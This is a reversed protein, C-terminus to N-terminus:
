KEQGREEDGGSSGYANRDHPLVDKWTRLPQFAKYSRYRPLVSNNSETGCIWVGPQAQVTAEGVYTQVLDEFEGVDDIVVGQDVYVLRSNPDGEPGIMTQKICYKEGARTCRVCTTNVEGRGSAVIFHCVMGKYDCRLCPPYKEKDDEDNKKKEKEQKESEPEEFDETGQEYVEWPLQLTRVRLAERTWGAAAGNTRPEPRRPPLNKM